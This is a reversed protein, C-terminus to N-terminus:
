RGQGWGIPALLLGRTMIIVLFTRVCKWFTGPPLLVGMSFWENLGTEKIQLYSILPNPLLLNARLSWSTLVWRDGSEWELFGGLEVSCSGLQVRRSSILSKAPVGKTGM